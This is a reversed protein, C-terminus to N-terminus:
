NFAFVCVGVCVLLPQINVAIDLYLLVCVMKPVLM